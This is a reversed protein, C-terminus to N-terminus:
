LRDVEWVNLTCHYVITGGTSDDATAVIMSDMEDYYGMHGISISSPRNLTNSAILRRDMFLANGNQVTHSLLLSARGAPAAASGRVVWARYGYNVGIKGAAPTYGLRGTVAHPATGGLALALAHSVPNRDWLPKASDLLSM